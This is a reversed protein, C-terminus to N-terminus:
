EEEDEEESEARSIRIQELLEIVQKNQIILIEQNKVIAALPITIQHIEELLMKIMKEPSAM